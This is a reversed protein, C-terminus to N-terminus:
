RSPQRLSDGFLYEEATDFPIALSWDTVQNLRRAGGPLLRGDRRQFAVNVVSRGRDKAVKVAPVYDQDGSVIVAIDYIDLLTIVDTALKVDVAKEPGLRDDFLNFNIAGARRFEIARNNEAIANQIQLWGRFRRRMVEQRRLLSAVIENMRTALEAGSLDSLERRFTQGKSLLRKLKDPESEARPFRYPFFDLEELTYWYTRVREAGPGGVEAVIWDFFAQWKATKPLYDERRFGESEFLDVIAHRLNEGDVFVCVRKAM